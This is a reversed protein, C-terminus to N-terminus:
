SGWIFSSGTALLASFLLLPPLFKKGQGRSFFVAAILFFCVLAALGGVPRGQSIEFWSVAPLLLAILTLLLLLPSDKDREGLSLAAMSFLSMLVIPALLLEEIM